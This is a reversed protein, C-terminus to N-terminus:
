LVPWYWGVLWLDINVFMIWIKSWLYQSSGSFLVVCGVCSQLNVWDVHLVSLVIDASSDELTSLHKEFLNHYFLYWSIKDPNRPPNCCSYLNHHSRRTVSLWPDVPQERAMWQYSSNGTIIIRSGTWLFRPQPRGGRDSWRRRHSLSALPSLLSHPTLIMMFQIFKHIFCKTQLCM